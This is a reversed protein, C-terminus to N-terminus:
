NYLGRKWQGKGQPPPNDGNSPNITGKEDKITNITNKGLGASHNKKFMLNNFPYALLTYM